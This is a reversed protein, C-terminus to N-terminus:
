FWRDLFINDAFNFKLRKDDYLADTVTDLVAKSPTKYISEM